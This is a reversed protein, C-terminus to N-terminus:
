TAGIGTLENADRHYRMSFAFPARGFVPGQRIHEWTLTPETRWDRPAIDRAVGGTYVVNIENDAALPQVTLEEKDSGLYVLGEVPVAVQDSTVTTGVRYGRTNRSGMKEFVVPEGGIEVEAAAPADTVDCAPSM